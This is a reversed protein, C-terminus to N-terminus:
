KHENLLLMYGPHSGFCTICFKPLNPYFLFYKLIKQRSILPFDVMMTGYYSFLPIWLDDDHEDDEYDDCDRHHDFHFDPPIFVLHQAQGAEIM